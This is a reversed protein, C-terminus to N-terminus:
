STRPPNITLLMGGELLEIPTGSPDECYRVRTAADGEGMTITGEERVKGGFEVVRGLTEELDDVVLAIHTFGITHHPTDPRPKPAPDYYKILEIQSQPRDGQALLVCDVTMTEQGLVPPFEPPVAARYTEFYNLAGTYFRVSEELDNVAIAVHSFM